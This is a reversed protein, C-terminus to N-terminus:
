LGTAYKYAIPTLQGEDLEWPMELVLTGGTASPNDPTGSLHIGHVIALANQPYKDLHLAVEKYTLVIDAGQATTGKVEVYVTVGDKTAHLDYSEKDGVDKVAYGMGPATFHNTTVEVARLEIAKRQAVTLRPAFGGGKRKRPDAIIEAAGTADAVEPSDGPAYLGRDARYIDGLWEAAQLLDAEIQVDDPMRDLEYAIAAVNGWEYSTGLTSRTNDLEITPSWGPPLAAIQKRAWESREKLQDEPQPKFQMGDWQTTGQNLSLYVRDGAASFLYVLYWGETPRSSRSISHIRTWPIETKRGTGDKGMIHLDDVGSRAALAPLLENLEKVLQTRVLYGRRQMEDTNEPSFDTQLLLVEEMTERVNYFTALRM